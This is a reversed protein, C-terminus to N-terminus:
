KKALDGPNFGKIPPTDTFIPRNLPFPTPETFLAELKREHPLADIASWKARLFDRARQEMELHHKWKLKGYRIMLARLHSREADSRPLRPTVPRLIEILDKEETSANAIAQKSQKKASQRSQTALHRIPSALWRM